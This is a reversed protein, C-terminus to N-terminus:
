LGAASSTRLGGGLGLRAEVRGRELGPFGMKSFGTLELFVLCERAGVM